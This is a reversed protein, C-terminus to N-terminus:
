DDVIRWRLPIGGRELTTQFATRLVVDAYVDATSRRQDLSYSALSGAAEGINWEVPHLRIAATPSTRPASTRPRPLFTAVHPSPILAASRSRFRGPAAVSASTRPVLAIFISRIGALGSQTLSTHPWDRGNQYNASVDQEVVTRLAKIRRSERIYPFKALGDATGMIDPRLKLEPAGHAGEAPAETQLWHLFGLSVRKADQLAAAVEAAPRDIISRNGTTTAPGTSCPSTTRSASVEIQASDILRRYTWLGGKTGPMTDYLGYTLWGSEEGYIEGGHVEIKLSYPQADRFHEYKEPAPHCPARGAAPARPRVCLHLEARVEAQARRAPRAARRDGCVTEAGVVYEAGALPLLDGLETADIVMTPRFLVPM